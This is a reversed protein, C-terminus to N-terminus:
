KETQKAAEDRMQELRKRSEQLRDIHPLMAPNTDARKKLEEIHRDMAQMLREASEKRKQADAPQGPVAPAGAPPVAGIGQPGIGDKGYREYIEHAAPHNKKLDAADKAAYKQKAVKGNKTETVEVEIGNVPDEVIRMKKGNEDIDTERRNNNVRRAINIRGVAPRIAGLQIRMRQAAPLLADRPEPPPHLINAARRGAASSADDALRKLTDHAAQKTAPDDSQFHDQLIDFARQAVERSESRAAAELAPFAEKGLRRLKDTAAQRDSFHNADLSKVLKTVDGAPDTVAENARLVGGLLAGVALWAVCTVAPQMSRM